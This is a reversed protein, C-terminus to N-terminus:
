APGNLRTAGDLVRAPSGAAARREFEDALANLAAADGEDSMAQSLSRCKRAKERLQEAHGMPVEQLADVAHDRQNQKRWRFHGSNTEPRDLFNRLPQTVRAGRVAECGAVVAM